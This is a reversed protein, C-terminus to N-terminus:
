ASRAQGMVATAVMRYPAKIRLRLGAGCPMHLISGPGVSVFEGDGISCDATGSLVVFTEAYPPAASVYYGTDAKWIMVGVGREADMSIYRRWATGAGDQDKADSPVFDDDAMVDIVKTM